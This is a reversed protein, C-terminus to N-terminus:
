VEPDLRLFSEDMFRFPRPARGERPRFFEKLLEDRGPLRIEYQLPYYSPPIETVFIEAGKPLQGTYEVLGWFSQGRSAEYDFDPDISCKYTYPLVEGDAKFVIHAAIAELFILRLESGTKSFDWYLKELRSYETENPWGKALSLFIAEGDLRASAKWMGKEPFEIRVFSIDDDTEHCFGKLCLGCILALKLVSTHWQRM